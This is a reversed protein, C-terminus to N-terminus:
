GVSSGPPGVSYIKKYSCFARGKRHSQLHVNRGKTKSSVGNGEVPIEFTVKELFVEKNKECLNLHKRREDEVVM